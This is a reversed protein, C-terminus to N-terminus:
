GSRLPAFHKHAYVIVHIIFRLQTEYNVDRIPVRSDSRQTATSKDVVGREPLASKMTPEQRMNEALHMVMAM